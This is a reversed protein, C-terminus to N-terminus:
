VVLHMRKLTEYNGHKTRDNELLSLNRNVFTGPYDNRFESYEWQIKQNKANNTYIIYNYPLPKDLFRIPVQMEGIISLFKEKTESTVSINYNTMQVIRKM